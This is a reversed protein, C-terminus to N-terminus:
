EVRLARAENRAPAGGRNLLLLGTETNNSSPGVDLVELKDRGGPLLRTAGAGGAAFVGLYQEGLPALTVGELVDTVEGSFGDDVALATVDIPQLFNAADMGIQEGCILLVTNGSQVDQDTFFLSTAEGTALNQAFAANRGDDLQPSLSADYNFVAYDLKGDQNTDLDLEFLALSNSHAQREWTNVAFAMNFSANASRVGASVPFTAYGLYRLDPRPDGEGAAGRPQNPSSGILSYAEVTTSGVGANRLTKAEGPEIEHPVQVDGARRPLVQRASHINNRPDAADSLSLYGDLEYVTLLDANAGQEGSNLLWGPLTTGNVQPAAEFQESEGARVRIRNPALLQVNGNAADNAFRITPKIRHEIDRRGFNRVTVERRAVYRRATVAVCGFSLSARGRSEYAVASTALARDVRVEGNGNRTIPALEGGFLAPRNLLCTQATNTLMAKLEAPSRRPYVQKLLAAAGAVM